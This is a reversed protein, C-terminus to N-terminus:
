LRHYIIMFLQFLLLLRSLSHIFLLLLLFFLLLLINHYYYYFHYGQSLASKDLDAYVIDDKDRAADGEDKKEEGDKLQLLFVHKKFLINNSLLFLSIFNM